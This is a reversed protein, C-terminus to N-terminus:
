AAERGAELEVATKKLGTLDLKGSGLLPFQEVKHFCAREPVWLKPVDSENLRKCLGDVDEYDKVLVVLREGKREDPVATVM